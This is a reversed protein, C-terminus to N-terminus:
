PNASAPTPLEVTIRTGSGPTSHLDFTGGISEARERMTALGFRPLESRGLVAPNFGAGDDEVTV